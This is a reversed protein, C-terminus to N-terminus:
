ADTSLSGRSVEELFRMDVVKFGKADTSVYEPAVKELDQAIVGFCRRGPADRYEWTAWPVGPLAETKLRIIKRKLRIDSSMAAMAAMATMAGQATDASTQNDTAQQGISINNFDRLAQMWDATPAPSAMSYKPTDLLSNMAQMQQVYSQRGALDNRFVDNGAQNGQAIASNMASSYADNRQLGFDSMASKGAESTPDLGQNLLQTQLASQRKDWQPDLRSTSQSYASNIAQNRAADGSLPNRLAEAYQSQLSDQAGGLAGGFSNNLNWQGDAGKSWQQQGWPTSVNPRNAGQTQDWAQQDFAYQRALFNNGNGTDADTYKRLTDNGWDQQPNAMPANGDESGGFPSLTTGGSKGM